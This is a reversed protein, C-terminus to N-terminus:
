GVAAVEPGERCEVADRADCVTASSRVAENCQRIGQHVGQSVKFDLLRSQWCFIRNNCARKVVTVQMM